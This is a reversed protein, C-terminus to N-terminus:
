SQHIELHTKGDFCAIDDELDSKAFPILNDDAAVRNRYSLEGAPSQANIFWWPYIDPYTGNTAELIASPYKFGAPLQNSTYLAFPKTM